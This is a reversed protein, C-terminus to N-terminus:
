CSGKPKLKKLRSLEMHGERSEQVAIAPTASIEDDPVFMIRMGWGEHSSVLKGFDMWSLRQGDIEIVPIHGSDESCEICCRLIDGRATWQSCQKSYEIQSKGESIEIAVFPHEERFEQMELIMDNHMEIVELDTMKALNPGVKLSMGAGMAPDSYDIIATDGNRTIRVENPTVVRRKMKPM